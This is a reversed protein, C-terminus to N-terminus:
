PAVLPNVAGGWFSPASTQVVTGAGTAPNLTAISGTTLGILQHNHYALGYISGIGTLGIATGAGTSPNVKILLNNAKTAGNGSDSTAYVTGDALAVLDGASDFGGGFSGIPTLTKAVPDIKSLAGTQDAILLTGDPMATLANYSTLCLIGSCFTMLGTAAGTSPNVTYLGKFSSIYITGSSSVAIDTALEGLPLGFTGIQTSAWTSPNVSYLSTTTNAYLPTACYTSTGCASDACDTLGNCNNDIGDNCIETSPLVEGSCSGWGTGAGCTETGGKCAGVGETGSPGTYCSKTAGATCCTPYSACAPDACDTLGNCDDDLGDNCVEASPVVAGSCSGWTRGASCTQLGGKCVGVGETGAPGTYCSQTSAPVCGCGAFNACAPDACDTLGNCDDDLGDNCVETSPVVEGACTASWVGDAGCTSMGAKCAGVGATASPGTYCIETANPACCTGVNACSPDACDVLGNCNNDIGDNCIETQPLVQGACTTPWSGASSCTETGGRCIGVGETGAPGTYCDQTAGASCCGAVSCCAKNGVCAPDLCDTFGNCDNDIGDSCNEAAPTVSGTCASWVHFEGSGGCTQTGGKCAGVNETNAAGTYCSTTVAPTDCSCGTQDLPNTCGAADAGGGTFSFSGSSGGDAAELVATPGGTGGCAVALVISCPIVVGLVRM